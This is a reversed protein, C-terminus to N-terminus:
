IQLTCRYIEIDLFYQFDEEYFDLVLEEKKDQRIFVIIGSKEDEYKFDWNFVSLNPIPLLGCEKVNTLEMMYNANWDLLKSRVIRQLKEKDEFSITEKYFLTDSDFDIQELFSDTKVISLLMDATVEINLLKNLQQLYAPLFNVKGFLRRRKQEYTENNNM